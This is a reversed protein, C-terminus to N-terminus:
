YNKCNELVHLWRKDGPPSAMLSNQVIENYASSEVIILNNNLQNYFNKKCMFDM